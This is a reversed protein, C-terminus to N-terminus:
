THMLTNHHTSQQKEMRKQRKACRDLLEQKQAEVDDLERFDWENKNEDMRENDNMDVRERREQEPRFSKRGDEKRVFQIILKKACSATNMHVPM